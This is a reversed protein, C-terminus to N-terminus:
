YKRQLVITITNFPQNDNINKVFFDIDKQEMMNMAKIFKINISYEKFEEWKM